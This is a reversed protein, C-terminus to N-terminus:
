MHPCYQHCAPLHNPKPVLWHSLSSALPMLVRDSQVPYTPLSDPYKPAHDEGGINITKQAREKKMGDNKMSDNKQLMSKQVMMKPVVYSFAM